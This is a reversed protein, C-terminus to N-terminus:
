PRRRLRQLRVPVAGALPQRSVPDLQHPFPWQGDEAADPGDALVLALQGAPVAAIRAQARVRVEHSVLEVTEGDEIELAAADDRAVMVPALRPEGEPRQSAARTLSGYPRWTGTAALLLPFAAPRRTEPAPEVVRLRARGAPDSRRYEDAGVLAGTALDHGFSECTEAATPFAGDQYLRDSGAAAGEPCPWTMGRRQALLEYSIGTCDCPRGRSCQKWAEFAGQPGDWAPLPHGDRDRLDLRHACELWIDLDSRADGPPDIAKTCLLVRRDHGVVTGTKEGWLAAPLVVDAALATASLFADQVVLFLSDRALAARARRGSVRSGLPDAGSIWLARLAGEAAYHFTRSAPSPPGWGIVREPDVNWTRALERAHSEHDWNRMGPLSGACGALAAGGAGAPLHFPACGPLGVQGRLLHLDNVQVGIGAGQGIPDISPVCLSVLRPTSSLIEVAACVREATVGSRREAALPDRATLAEVLEDFGTCRDRLFDRDIRGSEIVGRLLADLLVSEGGARPALHVDAARATPGDHPDIVVLRPPRAGRRREAIRDWLVPQSGAFDHGVLLLAEALEIDTPTGPAASCGFSEILAARAAAGGRLGCDLHPTGLGGQALVALTYYEELFLHAGVHFGLAAAGHHARIEELRRTILEWAEEWTAEDLEGDRRILPSTLRGPANHLQWHELTDPDLRGRQAAAESPARVGVIRGDAVAFDLAVCTLPCGSAVWRDPEAVLRVDTGGSREADTRGPRFGIRESAAPAEPYGAPAPRFDARHPM